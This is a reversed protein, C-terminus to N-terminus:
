ADSENLQVADQGSVNWSSRRPSQQTTFKKAKYMSIEAANRLQETTSSPTTSVVIGAAVSVPPIKTGAPLSLREGEVLLCIQKITKMADELRCGRIILGVEDGGLRYGDGRDGLASSVDQFYARVVVNGADHGLIDNVSKMGNLDLYAIVVPNTESAEVQAIRLDTDFHRGDWLIDYRDRIRGSRLMQGLEAMRVRGSHTIYLTVDRGGLVKSLATVREQNLRREINSEGPLGTPMMEQHQWPINLDNVYRNSVLFAVMDREVGNNLSALPLRGARDIAGLMELEKIRVDM